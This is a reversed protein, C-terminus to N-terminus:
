LTWQYTMRTYVTFDPVTDSLDECFAFALEAGGGFSYVTGLILQMSNDSLHRISKDALPSSYYNVQANFTWFRNYRYEAGLLMGYVNHNIKIPSADSDPDSIWIWGPNMYLTVPEMRFRSLAFFGHDFGGSGFGHGANGTPLKLTYQLSLSMRDTEKPGFLLAKASARCDTIHIGGSQGSFWPHGDAEIVYAFEDKPRKKRGYNPLGLASHFFELFNDLFGSNMSVFPLILQFSLNETMGYGLSVDVATLEMDMLARGAATKENFFVSTYDVSLALQLSNEPLSLPSEGSPTLFMLHPPFRNTVNM